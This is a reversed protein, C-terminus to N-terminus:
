AHRRLAAILAAEYGPRKVDLLLSARDAVIAAAEDLTVFGPLARRLEDVSAERVPKRGGVVLSVADDHVLVLTGDAAPQVDCEIRDVGLQIATLLAARSNGPHYAAAGRHGIIEIPHRPRHPPTM